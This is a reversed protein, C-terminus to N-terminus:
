PDAKDDAAEDLGAEGASDGTSGDGRPRDIEGVGYRAGRGDDGGSVDHTRGIKWWVGSRALDGVDIPSM